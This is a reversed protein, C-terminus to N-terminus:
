RSGGEGTHCMDCFRDATVVNILASVGVRADRPPPIMDTGAAERAGVRGRTAM